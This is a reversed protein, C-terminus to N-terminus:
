KKVFPFIDTYGLLDTILLVLFVIAAVTVASAGGAPMEDMKAALTVAEADTLSDVRAQIQDPSVGQALLQQKVDQREFASRLQMRADQAQSTSVVAETGVLAAQAVPLHLTLAFFGTLVSYTVPKIIRRLMQM